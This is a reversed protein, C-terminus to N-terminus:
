AIKSKNCDIIVSTTALFGRGVLLPFKHDKDMDLIDFDALITLRGIHVVVHKLIGAHYARRKRSCSSASSVSIVSDVDLQPNKFIDSPLEIMMRDSIFKLLTDVKNEIESQKQKFDAEFKSLRADQSSM